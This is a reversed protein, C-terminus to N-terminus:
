RILATTAAIIAGVGAGGIASWWLTPRKSLIALSALVVAIELLVEGIHLRLAQRHRKDREAEFERARNRNEETERGYRAIDDEYGRAAEGGGGPMRRLMDLAVRAEYRRIDKAQAFAWQDAARQQLVIEETTCIHGLVSVVALGAAIIAMTAAVKKDFSSSAHEAHHHLEEEVSMSSPSHRGTEASKQASGVFQLLM